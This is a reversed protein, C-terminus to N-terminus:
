RRGAYLFPAPDSNVGNVYVSFHLHPATSLGTSGVTGIRQGKKVKQGATVDVDTMHLYSTEIGEGGMTGHDIRVNNGSGGNYGHAAKTVVGDAVAYIPAGIAGGIDAGGHLRSYKLIPHLRMGWPSNIEGETPWYFVQAAIRDAEAEIAHTTSALTETRAQAAASAQAQAVQEDVQGVSAARAAAAANVDIAPRATDRDTSSGRSSFADTTGVRVNTDGDAQIASAPANAASVSQAIGPTIVALVGVTAAAGVAIGGRVFRNRRALRRPLASEAAFAAETDSVACRPQYSSPNTRAM